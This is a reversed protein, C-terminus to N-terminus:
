SLVNYLLSVKKSRSFDNFQGGAAPLGALALQNYSIYKSYISILSTQFFNTFAGETPWGRWHSLFQLTLQACMSGLVPSGPFAPLTLIIGLSHLGSSECPTSKVDVLLFEFFLKCIIFSHALDLILFSTVVGILTIPLLFMKAKLNKNVNIVVDVNLSKKTPWGKFFHHWWFVRPRLSTM